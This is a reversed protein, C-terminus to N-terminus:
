LFAPDAVLPCNAVPVGIGLLNAIGMTSFDIIQTNNDSLTATYGDGFRYYHYLFGAFDTENCNNPVGRNYLYVVNDLTLTKGWISLDKIEGVDNGTLICSIGYRINQLNGTFSLAINQNLINTASQIGNIYFEATPTALTGKWIVVLHYWCGGTIEVNADSLGQFVYAGVANEIRLRLLNGVISIQTGDNTGINRNDLITANAGINKRNLWFSVSWDKTSAFDFSDANAGEYYENGSAGDLLCVMRNVIDDNIPLNRVRDANVDTNFLSNM